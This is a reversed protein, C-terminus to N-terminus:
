MIRGKYREKISDIRDKWFEVKEFVDNEVVTDVKVVEKDNIQIGIFYAGNEDARIMLGSIQDKDLLGIKFDDLSMIPTEYSQVDAM